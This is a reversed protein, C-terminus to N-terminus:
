FSINPLGLIRKLFHVAATCFFMCSNGTAFRHLQLNESVVAVPFALWYKFTSCRAWQSSICCSGILQTSYIMKHNCAAQALSRNTQAM